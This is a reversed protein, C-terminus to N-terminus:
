LDVNPYLRGILCLDGDQDIYIKNTSSCKIIFSNGGPSDCNAEEESKLGEICMDGNSDIFAVNNGADKVIFSEGVPGPSDCNDETTIDGKLVINGENGLWAVINESSDKHYFKHTDDPLVVYTDSKITSYDDGDYIKCRITKAGIGSVGQGTCYLDYPSSDGAVYCFDHNSTSPTCSIGNCCYMALVDSDLDAEGSATVKINEGQEAYEKDLSISSWTPVRNSVTKTSSKVYAGHGGDESYGRAICYVEDGKEFESSDLTFTHDWTSGLDDDCEDAGGDDCTESDVGDGNVYWKVKIEDPHSEDGQVEVYCDVDSDGYITSDITITKTYPVDCLQNDYDESTFATRYIELETYLTQDDIDDLGRWL